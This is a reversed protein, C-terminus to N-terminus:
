TGNCVAITKIATEAEARTTYTTDGVVVITEVTPKEEVIMCKKASTDHVVYFTVAMAPAATAALMAGAIALRSATKLSM